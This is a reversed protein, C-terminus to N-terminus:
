CQWPKGRRHAATAGQIPAM